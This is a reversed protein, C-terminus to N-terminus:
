IGPITFAAVYGRAAGLDEYTVTEPIRNWIHGLFLALAAPCSLFLHVRLSRTEALAQWVLHRLSVALSIADASGRVADRSPGEAPSVGCYRKVPLNHARIHSVAQFAVDNTVSVGIALEPGLDLEQCQIQTSRAHTQSRSTWEEGRQISSVSWGTTDSFENGVAFWTPLRMHGRVLVESFGLGRVQKAASALEAKFKGNWASSDVPERRSKADSGQFDDVWDLAATATAAWPDRDIAQVLVTARRSQAQLGRENTTLEMDGATIVRKGSTVWNRAAQVGSELAISDTRLGAEGMRAAAAELLLSWPGQDTLVALHEFMELLQPESIGLHNAWEARKVGAPSTAQQLTLRPVFRGYRGDRLVMVPDNPDIGRNTVLHMDPVGHMRLKMWSDWFKKLVSRSRASACDTWWQCQIPSSADVAYKLQCYLTPPRTRAVVVDDVNGAGEAEISVTLIDERPILLGVAQYWGYLHQYDDGQLRAGSASLPSPM